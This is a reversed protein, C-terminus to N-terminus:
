WRLTQADSRGECRPTPDVVVGPYSPEAVARPSPLAQRLQRYAVIQREDSAPARLAPAVVARRPAVPVLRGSWQTPHPVAFRAGTSQQRIALARVQCM